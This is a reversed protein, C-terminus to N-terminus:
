LNFRSDFKSNNIPTINVFPQPQNTNIKILSNSNLIHQNQLTQHLLSSNIKNSNVVTTTTSSASITSAALNTSSSSSSVQTPSLSNVTPKSANISIVPSNPQKIVTQKNTNVITQVIRPANTSAVYLPVGNDMAPYASIQCQPQQQQQQVGFHSMDLTLFNVLISILRNHPSTPSTSRAVFKNCIIQNHQTLSYLCELSHLLVLVDQITLLEEFRDVLHDVFLHKTQEHEYLVYKALLKDNSLEDEFPDIVQSCLKTLIELGRILDLRDQNFSSAMSWKERICETEGNNVHIRGIILQCLSSILLSQVSADLRKLKLEKSLNSLIDLSHKRIELSPNNCYLCMILFEVLVQCKNVMYDANAEDFSLNNLAVM